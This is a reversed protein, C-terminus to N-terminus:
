RHARTGRRARHAVVADPGARHVPGPAVGAVLPMGAWLTLAVLVLWSENGDWLWAVLGHMERRRRDDRDFLTLVGIGLDYGDLVIYLTFALIVVIMWGDSLHM